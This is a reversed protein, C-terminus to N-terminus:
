NLKTWLNVRAHTHAHTHELTHMHLGLTCPGASVLLLCHLGQFSSDCTSTLWRIYTNPVACLNKVLLALMSVASCDRGM